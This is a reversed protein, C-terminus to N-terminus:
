REETLFLECSHCSFLFEFGGNSASKITFEFLVPAESTCFAHTCDSVAEGECIVSVFHWSAESNLFFVSRCWADWVARWYTRSFNLFM